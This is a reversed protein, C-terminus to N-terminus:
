RRSPLLSLPFPIHSQAKSKKRRKKQRLRKSVASRSRWSTLPTTNGWVGKHLIPIQHHDHHVASKHQPNLNLNQHRPAHLPNSAEARITPTTASPHAQISSNPASATHRRKATPTSARMLRPEPITQQSTAFILVCFQAMSYWPSLCSICHKQDIQPINMYSGTEARVRASAFVQVGKIWTSTVASISLTFSLCWVRFVAQSFFFLLTRGSEGGFGTVQFM